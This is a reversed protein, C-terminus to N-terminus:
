FVLTSLLIELTKGFDKPDFHIWTPETCHVPGGRPITFNNLDDLTNIEEGCISTYFSTIVANIQDESSGLFVRQIKRIPRTLVWRIQDSDQELLLVSFNVAERRDPEPMYQIITYYGSM